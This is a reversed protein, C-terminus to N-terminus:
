FIAVVNSLSLTWVTVLPGVIILPLILSSRQQIFPTYISTHIDDAQNYLHRIVFFLFANLLFLLTLRQM